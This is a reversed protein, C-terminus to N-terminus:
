PTTMATGTTSALAGREKKPKTKKNTKTKKKKCLVLPVQEYTREARAARNNKRM